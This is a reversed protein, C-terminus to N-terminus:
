LLLRLADLPVFVLAHLADKENNEEHALALFHSQDGASRQRQVQVTSYRVTCGWLNWARRSRYSFTM